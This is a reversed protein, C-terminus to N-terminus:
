EAEVDVDPQIGPDELKHQVQAESRSRTLEGEDPNGIENRYRNQDKALDQAGAATGKGQAPAPLDVGLQKARNQMMTQHEAKLRTKEADTGALQLREQYRNREQETMIEAGYMASGGAAETPQHVREQDRVQDRQQLQDGDGGTGYSADKDGKRLQDQTAQGKRAQAGSSRDVQQSRQAMRDRDMARDRQVQQQRVAQSGRNPQGGQRQALVDASVLTMVIAVVAMVNFRTRM